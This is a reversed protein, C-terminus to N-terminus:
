RVKRVKNVKNKHYVGNADRHAELKALHKRYKRPSVREKLSKMKKAM